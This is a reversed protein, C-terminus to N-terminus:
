GDRSGTYVLLLQKFMFVVVDLQGTSCMYLRMIEGNKATRGSNKIFM